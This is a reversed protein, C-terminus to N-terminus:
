VFYLYIAEGLIHQVTAWSTIVRCTTHPNGHYWEGSCVSAHTTHSSNTYYTSSDIYVYGGDDGWQANNDAKIIYSAEFYGSPHQIDIFQPMNQRRWTEFWDDQTLAEVNESILNNNMKQSAWVAIASVIMLCGLLLKTRKMKKKTLETLYLQPNNENRNILFGM